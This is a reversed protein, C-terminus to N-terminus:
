RIRGEKRKAELFGKPDGEAWEDMSKYGGFESSGRSGSPKTGPGSPLSAGKLKALLKRALTLRKEVPLDAPILEKEDEDLDKTLETFEAEQAQEIAAVRAALAERDAKEKTYLQEFEGRKKAADEEAKAKSEEEARLKTRYKAAEKRASELEKKLQDVTLTSQSSDREETQTEEAAQTSTTEEAM